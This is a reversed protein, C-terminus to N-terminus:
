CLATQDDARARPLKFFAVCERYIPHTMYNARTDSRFILLVQGDGHFPLILLGRHTMSSFIRISNADIVHDFNVANVFVADFM